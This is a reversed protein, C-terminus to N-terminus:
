VNVLCNHGESTHTCNDGVMHLQYLMWSPYHHEYDDAAAESLIVFYQPTCICYKNVQVIGVELLVLGFWKKCIVM